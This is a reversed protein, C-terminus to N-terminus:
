TAPKPTGPPRAGNPPAGNPPRASPRQPPLRNAGGLLAALIPMLQEMKPLAGGDGDESAAAQALALMLDRERQMSEATERRLEVLAASMDTLLARSAELTPRLAENHRWLVMDQARLMVGMLAAVESGRRGGAVVEGLDEVATPAEDRLWPAGLLKGKADLFEVAVWPVGDLVKEVHQWRQRTTPVAIERTSDDALRARVTSPRANKLADLLSRPGTAM